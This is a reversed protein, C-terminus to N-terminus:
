PSWRLPSSLLRAYNRYNHHQSQDRVHLVLQRPEGLHNTKHFLLHMLYMASEKIHKPDHGSRQTHHNSTAAPSLHTPHHKSLNPRHSHVSVLLISDSCQLQAHKKQVMGWTAAAKTSKPSALGLSSKTTTESKRLINDLQTRASVIGLVLAL